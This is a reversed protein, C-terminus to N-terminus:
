KDAPTATEPATISAASFVNTRAFTELRRAQRQELIKLERGLSDLTRLNGGIYILLIALLFLLVIVATGQQGKRSRHAAPIIRSSLREGEGQGEGGPSPVRKAKRLQLVKM